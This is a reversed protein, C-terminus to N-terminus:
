RKAVIEIKGGVDSFEFAYRFNNCNLVTNCGWLCPRAASITDCTYGLRKVWNRMIVAQPRTIQTLQVDDEFFTSPSVSETEPKHEPKPKPASRPMAVPRMMQQRSMEEIDHDKPIYARTIFRNGTNCVGPKILLREGRGRSARYAPSQGPASIDFPPSTDRSITEGDASTLVYCNAEAITMIASVILLIVFLVLSIPITRSLLHRYPIGPPIYM